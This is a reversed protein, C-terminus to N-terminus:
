LYFESSLVTSDLYPSDRCDKYRADTLLFVLIWNNEPVLSVVYRVQFCFLLIFLYGVMVVVVLVLFFLCVVWIGFVFFGVLCVFLFVGSFVMECLGSFISNCCKLELLTYLCLCTSLGPCPLHRHLPMLLPLPMDRIRHGVKLLLNIFRHSSVENHSSSMSM